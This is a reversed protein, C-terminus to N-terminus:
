SAYELLWAEVGSIGELQGTKAKKDIQYLAELSAELKESSFKRAISLRSPPMRLKSCIDRELTGQELLLAAQWLQRLQWHLIGVISVLDAEYFSMLDRFVKLARAPDRDAFANTLKFVDMEAWNEEFQNVMNEDIENKDGAFQMLRELMTDLFAVAEGCMMLIKTRAALTMTKKRQALKHQLFAMGASRTDEKTLLIVQGKVKALKQLESGAKLEDAEFILTTQPQFNKLYASLVLLDADKLSDADHVYIIQAPSFFPLTRAAVLVEEISTEALRFTQQALPSGNKKEIETAIAKSKQARLFPDGIILYLNM